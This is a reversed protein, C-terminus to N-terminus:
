ASLGSRLRLRLGAGQGLDLRGSGFLSRRRPYRPQARPRGGETAPGCRDLVSRAGRPRHAAGGGPFYLAVPLLAAGTHPTRRAAGVGPQTALLGLRHPGSLPADPLAGPSPQHSRRELRSFGPRYAPDPAPPSSLLFRSLAARGSRHGLRRPRLHVRRHRVGQRGPPASGASGGPRM